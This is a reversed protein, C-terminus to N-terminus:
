ASQRALRHVEEIAATMSQEAIPRYEALFPLDKAMTMEAHVFQVDDIGVAAFIARLYPEQLDRAEKGSGASYVSGRATVVVVSKGRLPAADGALEVLYSPVIIRDLWAKLTSPISYNYMPAGLLITTAWHLEEIVETTLARQDASVDPHEGDPSLVYERVSNTIHPIPAIALDRYRYGGQPDLQRWEAAYAASLTRSASGVSRISTDLHLLNPVSAGEQQLTAAGV